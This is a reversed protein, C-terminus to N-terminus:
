KRVTREQRHFLDVSTTSDVTVFAEPNIQKILATAEVVRKRPL